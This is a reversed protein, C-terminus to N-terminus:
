KVINVNNLWATDPMFLIKEANGANYWCSVMINRTVPIESPSVGNIISMATKAVWIGQEEPVKTFGLVSYKMMFDDCTFVPKIINENVFKEAEEENWGKISGNTPLYILDSNRNATKFANKWDEFNDVLRYEPTLGCNRYLTDLLETNRQESLSNESLITISSSEPYYKRIFSISERLPLVELIGTVHDSPLSYGAASWNVGCFVVPMMFKDLNPKVLRSVAFDDSVLLLSPNIEIIAKAISDAKRLAVQESSRKSDLYYIKLEYKSNDLNNIIGRTIADSPKYGENYSNVYVITKKGNENCSLLLIFALAIFNRLYTM